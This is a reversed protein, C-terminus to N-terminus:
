IVSSDNSMEKMIAKYNVGYIQKSQAKNNQLSGYKPALDKNRGKENQKKMM